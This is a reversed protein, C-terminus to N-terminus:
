TWTVKLSQNNCQLTYDCLSLTWGMSWEMLQRSCNMSYLKQHHSNIVFYLSTMQRAQTSRARAVETSMRDTMLTMRQVATRDGCTRYAEM